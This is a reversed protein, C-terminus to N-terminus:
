SASPYPWTPPNPSIPSHLCDRFQLAEQLVRYAALDVGAPLTSREGEVDIAVTLGEIQALEALRALGPEGLLRAARDFRRHVTVAGFSYCAM